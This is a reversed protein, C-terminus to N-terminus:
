IQEIDKRKRLDLLRKEDYIGEKKLYEIILDELSTSVSRGKLSCRERFNEYIDEMVTFNKVIKSPM